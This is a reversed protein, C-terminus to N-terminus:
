TLQSKSMFTTITCNIKRQRRNYSYKLLRDGTLIASQIAQILTFTASSIHRVALVPYQQQSSSYQEPYSLSFYCDEESM